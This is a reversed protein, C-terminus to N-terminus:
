DSRRVSLADTHFLDEPGLVWRHSAELGLTLGLGLLVLVLVFMLVLVLVLALALINVMHAM